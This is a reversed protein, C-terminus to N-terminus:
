INILGNKMTNVTINVHQLFSEEINFKLLESCSCNEWLVLLFAGFNYMSTIIVFPENTNETDKVNKDRLYEHKIM